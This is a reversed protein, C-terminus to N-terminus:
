EEDEWNGVGEDKISEGFTTEVEWVPQIGLYLRTQPAKQLFVTIDQSHIKVKSCNFNYFHIGYHLYKCFGGVLYLFM